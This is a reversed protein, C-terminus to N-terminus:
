GAPRSAAAASTFVYWSVSAIIGLLWAALMFLPVEVSMFHTVSIHFKSQVEHRFRESPSAHEADRQSDNLARIFLNAQRACVIWRADILVIALGLVFRILSPLPQTVAVAALGNIAIVINSRSMLLGDEVKVRERFDEVESKNLSDLKPVDRPFRVLGTWTTSLWDCVVTRVTHRTANPAM